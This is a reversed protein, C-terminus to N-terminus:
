AVGRQEARGELRDRTHTNLAERSGTRRHETLRVVIAEDLGNICIHFWFHCRPSLRGKPPNFVSPTSFFSNLHKCIKRTRLM